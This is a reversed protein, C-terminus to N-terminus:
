GDTSLKLQIQHIMRFKSCLSGQCQIFTPISKLYQLWVRKGVLSWIKPAFISTETIQVHLAQKIYKNLKGKDVHQPQIM